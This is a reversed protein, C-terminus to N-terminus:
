KAFQMQFEGYVGDYSLVYHKLKRNPRVQFFLHGSIPEDVPEFPLELSQLRALLSGEELTEGRIRVDTTGGGVAGGVGDPTGIQRPRTGTGPTGGIILPDNQRGFVSGGGGSRSQDLALVATGAIRDPSQAASRENDARCRLLFDSRDLELQNDFLPRVKIEVISYGKDLEDGLLAEVTGVDHILRASFEVDGARATTWATQAFGPDVALAALVALTALTTRLLRM